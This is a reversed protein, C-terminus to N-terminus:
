KKNYGLVDREARDDSRKNLWLLAEEIKTLAISNERCSFESIQFCHLRDRVIELLDMETVGAVSDKENRPGNQFKITAIEDGNRCIKYEHCISQDDNRYVDNLVNRKQIKNINEM